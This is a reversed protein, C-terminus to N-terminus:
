ISAHCVRIGRAADLLAGWKCQSHAFRWPGVFAYFYISLSAVMILIHGLMAFV